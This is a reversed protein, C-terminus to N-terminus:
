REVTNTTEVIGGWTADYQPIEVKPEYLEDIEDANNLILVTLGMWIAIVVIGMMSWFVVKYTFEDKM